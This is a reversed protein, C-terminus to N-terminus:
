FYQMESRSCNYFFKWINFSQQFNASCFYTLCTKGTQNKDVNNQM